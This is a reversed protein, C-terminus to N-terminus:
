GRMSSLRERAERAAPLGGGREAAFELCERERSVDGRRRHIAAEALADIVRMRLPYGEGMRVHAYKKALANEDGDRLAELLGREWSLYRARAGDGAGAAQASAEAEAIVGLAAEPGFLRLIVPEVNVLISSKKDPDTAMRAAELMSKGIDAAEESRGEDALALAYFSLYWTGQESYPSKIARAVSSGQEVFAAPDCAENYLAVLNAAKGDAMRNAVNAAWISCVVLLALAALLGPVTSVVYTGVLSSWISIILVTMAAGGAAALISYKKFYPLM